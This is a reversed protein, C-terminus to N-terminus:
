SELATRHAFFCVFLLTETSVWKFIASLDNPDVKCFDLSLDISCKIISNHVTWQLDCDCDSLQSSRAEWWLPMIYSSISQQIMLDWKRLWSSGLGWKVEPSQSQLSRQMSLLLMVLIMQRRRESFSFKQKWNWMHTEMYATCSLFQGKLQEIEEAALTAATTSGGGAGSAKPTKMNTLATHSELYLFLFFINPGQLLHTTSHM